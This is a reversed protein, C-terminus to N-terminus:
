GKSTRGMSSSRGTVSSKSSKEALDGESSQPVPTSPKSFYVSSLMLDACMVEASSVVSTACAWQPVSDANCLPTTFFLDSSELEMILTCGKREDKDKTLMFFYVM